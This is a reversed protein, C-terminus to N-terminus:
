KGLRLSSYGSQRVSVVPAQLKASRGTTYEDRTGNDYIETTKWVLNSATKPNLGLLGFEVFEHPGLTGNWAAKTFKGKADKTTEVKWGQKPEFGYVDLGAPFQVEIRTLAASDNRNPIRLTYKEHTGVFSQQPLIIIEAFSVASLALTLLAGGVLQYRRIM